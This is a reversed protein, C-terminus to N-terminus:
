VTFVAKFEEMYGPEETQLSFQLLVEIEFYNEEDEEEEEDEDDLEALPTALVQVAYWGPGIDNAVRNDEDEEFEFKDVDGKHWDCIQTFEAHSMIQLVDGEQVHIKYFGIENFGENKNGWELAKMTLKIDESSETTIPFAIGANILPFLDNPYDYGFENEAFYDKLGQKSAIVLVGETCLCLEVKNNM